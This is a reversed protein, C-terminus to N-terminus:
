EAQEFQKCDCVCCIKGQSGHASITHGCKCKTGLAIASSNIKYTAEESM